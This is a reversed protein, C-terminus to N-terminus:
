GTSTALSVDGEEADGGIGGDNEEDNLLICQNALLVLFYLCFNELFVDFSFSECILHELYYFDISCQSSDM